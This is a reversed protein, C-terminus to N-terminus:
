KMLKQKLKVSKDFKEFYDDKHNDTFLIAAERFEICLEKSM